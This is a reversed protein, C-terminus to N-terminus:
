RGDIKLELVIDKGLCLSDEGNLFIKDVGLRRLKPVAEAEADIIQKPVWKLKLM